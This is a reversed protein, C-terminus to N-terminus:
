FSSVSVFNDEIIHSCDLIDITSCLKWVWLIEVNMIKELKTNILPAIIRKLMNMGIEQDELIIQM